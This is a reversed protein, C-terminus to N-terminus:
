YIVNIGIVTELDVKVSRFWLIRQFFYLRETVHIISNDNSLYHFCERNKLRKRNRTILLRLLTYVTWTIKAERRIKVLDLFVLNAKLDHYSDIITEADDKHDTEYIVQKPKINWSTEKIKRRKKRRRTRCKDHM